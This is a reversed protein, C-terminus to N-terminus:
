SSFETRSRGRIPGSPRDAHHHESLPVRSWGEVV